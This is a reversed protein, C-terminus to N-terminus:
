QLRSMKIFRKIDPLAVIVLAAVGLLVISGVASRIKLGGVFNNEERRAIKEDRRELNDQRKMKTQKPSM